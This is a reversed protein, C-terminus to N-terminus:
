KVVVTYVNIVKQGASVTIVDRQISIKISLHSFIKFFHKAFNLFHAFPLFQLIKNGVFNTIIAHLLVSALKFVAHWFSSGCFERLRGATCREALWRLRDLM